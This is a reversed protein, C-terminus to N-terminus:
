LRKQAVVIYEVPYAHFHANRPSTFRGTQPDRTQPLIKSPIERLIVRELAFGAALLGEAFVQANLVDVGKLRTNGIVYCARAGPKLVRWAERFTEEMDMFFRGVALGLREDREQLACAIAQGLPSQIRVPEALPTGTGIFKARFARLDQALSLWLATLQHLDAYEYSTVYPSSTILIDASAEPWPQRRADQCRIDVYAHPNERVKQPVTAWFAANRRVMRQLHRLFAPWAEAPRKTRSRTPKVSGAAWLSCNKLIHSFCCLLFTQIDEDEVQRIAGLIAGLDRKQSEPFWYDLREHEPVPDGEAGSSRLLVTGVRETWERLFAQLREPHLPIAKARAILCAVENVDTGTARYGREVACVLTTGSGAFPDNVCADPTGSLYEDLLRDVLQPIFKAPYRHYGHTLRTTERPTCHAFSWAPDPALRAFLAEVEECARFAPASQAVSVM